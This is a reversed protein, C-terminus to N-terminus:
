LLKKIVVLINAAKANRGKIAMLHEVNVAAGDM